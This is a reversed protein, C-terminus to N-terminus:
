NLKIMSGLLRLLRQSRTTFSKCVIEVDGAASMTIKSQGNRLVVDGQAELILTEPREAFESRAIVVQTPQTYPGLRGLVIGGRGDDQRWVLVSDGDSLTLASSGTHLVECQVIEATGDVRVNVDGGETIEVVCARRVQGVSSLAPAFELLTRM